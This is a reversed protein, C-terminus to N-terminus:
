CLLAGAVEITKVTFLLYPYRFFAMTEQSDTFISFIWLFRGVWESWIPPEQASESSPIASSWLGAIIDGDVIRQV